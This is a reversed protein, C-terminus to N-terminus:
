QDLGKATRKAARVEKVADTFFDGLEDETMGAAEVARAFPKTMEEFTPALNPSTTDAAEVLQELYQGLTLGVQAAQAALRQETAPRLHITINM